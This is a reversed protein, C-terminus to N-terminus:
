VQCGRQGWFLCASLARCTSVCAMVNNGLASSPGVIPRRWAGSVHVTIGLSQPPIRGVPQLRTGRVKRVFDLFAPVQDELSPRYAKHLDFCIRLCLLGNEENDTGLVHMAAQMLQVGYPRLTENHPLRRGPLAGAKM